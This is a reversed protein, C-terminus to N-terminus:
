GLIEEVTKGVCVTQRVRFPVAFVPECQASTDALPIKRLSVPPSLCFVSPAIHTSPPLSLPLPLIDVVYMHKRLYRWLDCCRPTHAVSFSPCCSATDATRPVSTCIDCHNSTIPLTNALCGDTPDGQRRCPLRPGQYLSYQTSVASLFRAPNCLRDPVLFLFNSSSCTAM